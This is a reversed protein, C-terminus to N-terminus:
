DGEPVAALTDRLANVEPSDVNALPGGPKLLPRVLAAWKKSTSEVQVEMGYKLAQDISKAAEHMCMPCGCLGHNSDMSNLWEALLAGASLGAGAGAAVPTVDNKKM